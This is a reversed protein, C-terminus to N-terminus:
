DQSNNESEIACFLATSASDRREDLAVRVRVDPDEAVGCVSRLWRSDAVRQVDM